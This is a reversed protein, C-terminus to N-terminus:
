PKAGGNAARVEDLLKGWVNANAQTKDAQRAQTETGIKGTAWETRLGEADRLLLDVCHKAAVYLQRNSRLYFAAIQPAEDLPVRQLFRALMGNIKANRVPSIGYRQAYASAYADWTETTKPSHTQKGKKVLELKANLAGNAPKSDVPAIISENFPTPAGGDGSPAPLPDGPLSDGVGLNKGLASPAIKKAGESIKKGQDKGQDRGQDTTPIRPSEPPNPPGPYKSPSRKDVKQHKAFNSVQLYEVNEVDYVTILSARRLEGFLESIDLSDAPFVQMKIRKPSYVMRGEDDCFNWLGIFLLRAFASLEVVKEDTWFEPKITRIRAM